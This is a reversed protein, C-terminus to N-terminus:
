ECSLPARFSHLRHGGGWFAESASICSFPGILTDQPNFHHTTSGEKADPASAESPMYHCLCGSVIADVEPNRQYIALATSLYRREYKDDADLFFLIDGSAALVGTEFARMQGENKKFILKILPHEGYRKKLLDQSGDTSGDDVIIIESPLNTQALVSKIAEDIYCGYNYNDIIVTSSLRTSNAISIVPAIFVLHLLYITLLHM